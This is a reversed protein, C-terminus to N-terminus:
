AGVKPLYPYFLNFIAFGSESRHDNMTTIVAAKQTIKIAPLSEPICQGMRGAIHTKIEATSCRNTTICFGCYEATIPKIMM